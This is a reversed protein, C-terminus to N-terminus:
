RKEVELTISSREAACAQIRALHEQFKLSDSWPVVRSQRRGELLDAGVASAEYDFGLTRRADSFSDIREDLRYLHCESARWFDPIAIYGADGIIYAWNQLKCRFSTALTAVRDGYDFIATADDEVGNPAHRLVAHVTRPDERLFLWALAVPYIGMELLAGGALTADYERRGPDYPLLPYGFDAKVHTIRGIRGASVWEQAKVIAPLFWTWMGEMLYGGSREAAAIMSRCEAASTALPKECLVAKGHGLAELTNDHHLTHPTAVYVADVQPDEFLSRYDAHARPIGHQRAFANAAQQQRSAVAVLEGNAVHALDAAFQHAIRGTTLIGWRVRRM